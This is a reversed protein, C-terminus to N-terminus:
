AFCSCVTQTIHSVMSMDSDLYVDLDRVVCPMQINDIIFQEAPVELMLVDHPTFWIQIDKSNLRPDSTHCVSLIGIATAVDRDLVKSTRWFDVAYIHAMALM